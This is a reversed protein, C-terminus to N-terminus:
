PAGRMWASSTAWPSRMARFVSALSMFCFPMRGGRRPRRTGRVISLRYSIPM